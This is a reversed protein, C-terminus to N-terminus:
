LTKLKRCVNQNYEVDVFYTPYSADKVVEYLEFMFVGCLTRELVKMEFLM